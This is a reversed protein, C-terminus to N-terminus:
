NGQSHTKPRQWAPLAMKLAWRVVCPGIWGGRLLTCFLMGLSHHKWRWAERNPHHEQLKVWRGEEEEELCPSYILFSKKKQRMLGCSRRWNTRQIMWLTVPLSWVPRSMCQNSCPVKHASYVHRHLTVLPKRHLSHDWSEEPCQGPGAM